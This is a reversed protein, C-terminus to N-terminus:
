VKRVAAQAAALRAIPVRFPSCSVYDLGTKECFAISAPDGGHEGCISLKIKERTKRGREAAIQVLEGVGDVDLSVFPDQEIVVRNQYTTLFGAADDRSIGFTTQTLDNTGFSFFEASEAIEAARLAARPLEIMTGVMYDIKIGAESMVEKAVADIRAKVFDLEAKLSVLPVMVEPVVPEGTKKGAEVAAEFIARAQMEAIEPYSVALRCGRHGLMPNFEHLADARDRLKAADVGMSRAVEDVEEDTHPLFEHLPPDLLRITVPLGKMIEFLEAFDSRQMPLLKGLALRRGEETDSLIMERMAVIRSGDFFMHETRCLGIGEAGFSRATRADAPTEANARVKMRRARDAWEMLKGFDGSLEPQLMAVSGKLVQGSAGDITIVDGKRFTQGAALMTGNRYDVRLSGAGSVCPKGMGRAVVAAHSTMGGRTTLIGEAAHMGHIDEPSTEIRVLIVNRGEAKAQEAEESSFVIEGTAAGPSAPLGMGVVQREARPDITPHLLQDLAAPDIRLVAEEESILGEAAMEVAMKLAARATRKGSRTQLMWLKGREITFELDQMDRYHQELRNAVKLFEAFAEPMVKELSPKDSGAAIRAEETINQPTRIGAVVDEGQANVLFEGYLKNEGTSPNRTFAVGTASTEGMNGFVMAQVNVATGWAAPINHLRRYTIARANMWSSFVAGIAGWLQERPDQPFPQGLEEEVKAKYLGIVNKWDDASLATDVEVGLDAKTDELIEEFFGHDVGLVVDSYMQIFRRYSDYAFREDGSERAIAQVTEDNLGLNLVTDMMGPMSARAGSRVSVLLPKEADGFNRGTLTAIHALAAQVQADLESPYVRDNNYYYTCVETTITFGPPVPLGLSSMEALNAGKGGLLNRDSAAGEAKGDGFTYVWKAM